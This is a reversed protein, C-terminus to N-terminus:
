WLRGFTLTIQPTGFFRQPEFFPELMLNGADDFQFPSQQGPSSSERLVPQNPMMVQIGDPFYNFYYGFEISTVRTFNRSFDVGFKLEGAAGWHWDGDSWGTLVDNVPEAYGHFRFFLEGERYGNENFDDFYPFSFAAVPGGTATIFFRYEEQVRGPFIRQRLGLMLPFAFIRQYKNPVIQQGFIIDTFTQESVDRLGAFRLNVVGESQTGLVKRFEGGFAFGFNNVAFDFTLGSSYNDNLLTLSREVQRVDPEQIQANGEKLTGTIIFLLILTFIKFFRM